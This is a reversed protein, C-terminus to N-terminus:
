NDKYDRIVIALSISGLLLSLLFTAIFVKYYLLNFFVNPSSFIINIGLLGLFKIYLPLKYSKHFFVITTLSFSIVLLPVLLYEFASYNSNVQFAFSFNLSIFFGSIWFYLNELSKRPYITKFLLISILLLPFYDLITLNFFAHLITYDEFPNPIYSLFFKFVWAFVYSFLGLIFPPLYYLYNKWKFIYLSILIVLLPISFFLFLSM